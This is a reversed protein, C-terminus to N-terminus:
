QWGMDGILFNLTLLRYYVAWNWKHLAKIHSMIKESICERMWYKMISEFFGLSFVFPLNLNCCPDFLWNLETKHSKADLEKWIKKGGPCVPGRGKVREPLVLTELVRIMFVEKCCVRNTLTIRSISSLDSGILLELHLGFDFGFLGENLISKITSSWLPFDSWNYTKNSAGLALGLVPQVNLNQLFKPQVTSHYKNLPIYSSDVPIQFNTM